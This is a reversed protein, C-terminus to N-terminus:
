SYTQSVKMLLATFIAIAMAFLIAYHKRVFKHVFPYLAKTIEYVVLYRLMRAIVALLIFAPLFFGFDVAAANFVKYPVGSFPQFFIGLMGYEGFWDNVNVIMKEYVYPLKILASNPLNLALAIVTGIVTGIVDYVVLQTKRKVKMFIVLLLLFEPIVFWVIAEAAAWVLVLANSERSLFFKEMFYNFHPKSDKIQQRRRWWFVAVFPTFFLAISITIFCFNLIYSVLYEAM